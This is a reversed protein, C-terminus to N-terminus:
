FNLKYRHLNTNSEKLFKKISVYCGKSIVVNVIQFLLDGSSKFDSEAHLKYDFDLKTFINASARIERSCHTSHSNKM